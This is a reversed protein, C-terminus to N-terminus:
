RSMATNFTNDVYRHAGVVFSFPVYVISGNTPVVINCVQMTQGLNNLNADPSGDVNWYYKTMYYSTCEIFCSVWQQVLNILQTTINRHISNPNERYNACISRAMENHNIIGPQSERIYVGHDLFTDQVPIDFVVRANTYFSEINNNM